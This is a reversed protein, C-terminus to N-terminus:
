SSSQFPAKIVYLSQGDHVHSECVKWSIVSGKIKTNFVTDYVQDSLIHIKFIFVNTSVRSTTIDQHTSSCNDTM